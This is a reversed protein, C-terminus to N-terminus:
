AKGKARERELKRRKARLKEDEASKKNNTYIMQEYLKRKKKSLMGKARDIDEAEELSKKSLAKIAEVKAKSKANGSKSPVKAGSLEAELELQRQAADDEDGDDGDEEVDESFDGFAGDADQAEDDEVEEDDDDEDSTAVDMGEVTEDAEEADEGAAELAEKEPEQDELPITPDYAGQM